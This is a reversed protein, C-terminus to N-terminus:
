NHSVHYIIVDDSSFAIPLASIFEPDGLVKERPGYFVYEVMKSQLYVNVEQSSLSGNFISEVLKKSAVQDLTEFPHGFIVCDETYTPIFLGTSPSALVLSDPKGENNLWSFAQAEGKTLYFANSKMSIGYIFLIFIILVGPISFIWAARYLWKELKPKEQFAAIGILALIVVPIYIGAMFRRQLAYPFYTLLVLGILWLIIISNPPFVIYRRRLVGLICFIIAPSICLIFDWWAPAPTRNQATWQALVPDTTLAWYQYGLYSLGFIVVMMPIKYDLRRNRFFTWVTQFGAVMVISIVMFPQIVALLLSLIGAKIANKWNDKNLLCIIIGVFIAMGLPFHPNAFISLFPYGEAVRENDSLTHFILTMYGMGSGLSVLWLTRIAWKKDPILKRILIALMFILIGANILRAFHFMFPISIGMWRAIHGLLLYYLFVYAGNSKECSYALTFRWAGNFGEKMKVFYSQGDITNYLLGGFVYKTGASQYAYWLFLLNIIIILSILILASRYISNNRSNNRM